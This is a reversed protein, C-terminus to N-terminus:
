DEELMDGYQNKKWTNLQKDTAVSNRKKQQWQIHNEELVKQEQTKGLTDIDSFDTYELASTRM